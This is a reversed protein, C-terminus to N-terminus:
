FSLSNKAASADDKERSGINREDALHKNVLATMELRTPVSITEPFWHPLFEELNKGSERLAFFERSIKKTDILEPWVNDSAM